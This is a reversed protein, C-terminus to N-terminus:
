KGEETLQFFFDELTDHKRGISELGVGNEILAKSLVKGSVDSDYIRILEKDLVCFNKMGMNELLAAARTVDDVQLSIYDTQHKHIEEIPLETLLKGHRIIGITDALLDVESLIHSSIFITTGDRQNLQQFLTRMERIGDPDLANIPEDLILFEPRALIARAIALRQKMGLSYHRVQKGEVNQLEVLHLVEDIREKNPFGMYECHLELNQRATMKDYFYPNEIISGVKKFIEYSHDTVKEGFLQVEGADPRLLNLIMKMVTSKGAGNPGVFGYIAGKQIHINVDDVVINRKYAKRLGVTEMIYDM